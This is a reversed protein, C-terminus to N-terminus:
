LLFRYIFILLLCLLSSFLIGRSIQERDFRMFLFFLGANVIMGFTIIEVNIQKVIEHEFQQIGQLEPRSYLVLVTGLIPMLLGLLVGFLVQANHNKRM